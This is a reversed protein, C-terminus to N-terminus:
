EMDEVITIFIDVLEADYKIGKLSQLEEVAEQKSKGKKYVRHSLMADYSDCIALIRGEQSIEKGKLGLPYGTGDLREHHQRVIRYMEEGFFQEILDKGKTVHTKMIEYEEENLTSPKNLIYDPIYIKGIDHYRAAALINRYKYGTYGLKTAMKDVYSRVSDSHDFTYADKNQIDLLLNYIYRFREQTGEFSEDNLSHVLVRTEEVATVYFVEDDNRLLVLTGQTCNEFASQTELYGSIIFYSKVGNENGPPNFYVTSGQKIIYENIEIQETKLKNIIIASGDPTEVKRNYDEPLIISNKM